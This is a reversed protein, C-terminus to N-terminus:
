RRQELLDDAPAETEASPSRFTVRVRRSVQLYWIWLAPFLLRTINPSKTDAGGQPFVHEVAFYDIIEWIIALLLLASLSHPLSPKRKFFQFIMVVSWAFFLGQFFAEIWALPAYGATYSNSEPDTLTLWGPLDNILLFIERSVGLQVLPRIAVGIALLVLWGGIGELHRSHPPRPRPTPEWRYLVVGGVLGALVGIMANAVVSWVIGEQNLAEALRINQQLRYGFTARVEGMKKNWEGLHEAPVADALTHWNYRLDTRRGKTRTSLTYSFTADEIQMDDTSDPWDKPLLIATSQSYAIPHPLAFSFKREITEPRPLFDSMSWPYVEIVRQHQAADTTWLEDVELRLRATLVNRRRDDTWEVPELARIKPYFRALYGTMQQTYRAPDTVRRFYRYEDASAGQYTTNIELGAPSTYDSVTYTERVDISGEASRPSKVEVLNERTDNLVLAYGYAPVHRHEFDGGQLTLTPDVWRYSDSSRLQLTPKEFTPQITSAFSLSAAHTTGPKEVLVPEANPSSWSHKEVGLRVRVIAHDFSLPSPQLDIVGRRWASNVLAVDAELGIGRLLAVLLLSKDKCDGYRRQIVDLPAAPRHTSENLHLGVYRIDDQVFRLLADAKDEITKCDALLPQVYTMVEPTPEAGDIFLARAWSRVENWDTYETAQVYAYQCEHSPADNLASVAPVGEARWTHETRGDVEAEQYAPKFDGRAAIQLRRGPAGKIRYYLRDMPADSSCVLQTGFRGGFVPNRGNITYACEVVDGVRLDHLLTLATMRGHYLFREANEEQRLVQILSADLVERAKGDRWIRLFHWRLTQYAPAFNVSVQGAGQLGAETEIRYAYHRFEEAQAVEVQTEVLHMRTPTVPTFGTPNPLSAAPDVELPTNVWAPLAPVILSHAAPGTAAHVVVFLGTLAVVWLWRGIRVTRTASSFARFTPM